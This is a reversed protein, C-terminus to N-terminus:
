RNITFVGVSAPIQPTFLLELLNNFDAEENDVAGASMPPEIVLAEFDGEPTTAISRVTRVIGARDVFKQGIQRAYAILESSEDPILRNLEGTDPDAGITYTIRQITSYNNATATGRGDLTPRGLADAGLPLRADANGEPRTLAFALGRRDFRINGDIRRVFTAVQIPDSERDSEARDVTPLRTGTAADITRREVRRAAIDWVFRPEARSTFPTPNLRESTPFAAFGSQSAIILDGTTSNVNLGLVLPDGTQFPTATDWRGSPSWVVNSTPEEAVLDRWIPNSDDDFPLARVSLLANGRVLDEASREVSAGQISDSVTRQQQVVVPFVAALGVLGLALVVISILVEVLSFARPSATRSLGARLLRACTSINISRMMM